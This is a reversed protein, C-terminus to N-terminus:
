SDLEENTEDRVLAIERMAKRQEGKTRFIEDYDEVADMTSGYLTDTSSWAESLQVLGMEINRRDLSDPEISETGPCLMILSRRWLRAVDKLSFQGFVHEVLHRPLGYGSVCEDVASEYMRVALELAAMAVMVWAVHSSDGVGNKEISLRYKNWLSTVLPRTKQYAMAGTDTWFDYYERDTIDGYKKRVEPSMDALHFMRNSDAYLLNHEYRKIADMSEQFSKKVRQRYNRCMRAHDYGELVVLCAANNGIGCVLKVVAAARGMADITEQRTM